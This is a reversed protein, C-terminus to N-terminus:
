IGSDFGGHLVSALVELLLYQFAFALGEAILTCGFSQLTQLIYIRVADRIKVGHLTQRRGARLISARVLEVVRLSVDLM